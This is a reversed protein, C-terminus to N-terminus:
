STAARSSRTSGSGCTPGCARGAPPRGAPPARRRDGARVRGRADDRLRARRDDLQRGIGDAVVQVTTPRGSGIREGYGSPISLAMWARGSELYPAVADVNAVSDQSRSTRRPRSRAAGAAPQRHTRDADAVVVPVNRVDTTAAYGLVILQVVPAVFVIPLMRPDQRLELLEKWFLFMLRRM